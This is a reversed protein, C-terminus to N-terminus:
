LSGTESVPHGAGPLDPRIYAVRKRRKGTVVLSGHRRGRWATAASGCVPMSGSPGACGARGGLINILTGGGSRIDLSDVVRASARMDDDGSRM